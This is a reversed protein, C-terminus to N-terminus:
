CRMVSTDSCVDSLMPYGDIYSVDIYVSENFKVDSTIAARPRLLKSGFREGITCNSIVSKIDARTIVDVGAPLIRGEVFRLMAEARAHRLQTAM